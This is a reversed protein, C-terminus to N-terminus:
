TAGAFAPDRYCERLHEAFAVPELLAPFHGGDELDRRYRLNHGRTIWSTPPPPFFGRGFFTCGTPAECRQGPALAHKANRDAYYIWNATPLSGSFWYLSAITLLADRSHRPPEAPSSGSWGHYKDVLWAAVLAPSDALGVALTTPRTAQQERYGGDLALRKQTTKIWQLEAKDLPKAPDIAPRLGLMSLHVGALVGPADVGLWSSVVAGWDGGHAFFRTCGFNETMMSHWYAAIERAHMPKAPRDSYGFGPLAPVIVTAGDQALGGFREPHAIRDIVGFFEFPLSPWGHTLVIPVLEPNSGIELVVHIRLTQGDVTVPVRYQPYRNMTAEFARWDFGNRWYTLLDEMYAGPPGYSWDAEVPEPPKARASLRRKLDDLASPAIVVRFDEGGLPYAESGHRACVEPM